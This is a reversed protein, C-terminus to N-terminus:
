NTKVEKRPDVSTWLFAEMAFHEINWFFQQLALLYPKRWFVIIFAGM